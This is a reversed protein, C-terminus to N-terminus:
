TIIRHTACCLGYVAQTDYTLHGTFNMSLHFFIRGSTQSQRLYTSHGYPRYNSIALRNDGYECLMGLINGPQWLGFPLLFVPQFSNIKWWPRKLNSNSYHGYPGYISIALRNDRYECLM